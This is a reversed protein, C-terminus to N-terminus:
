IGHYREKKIGYIKRNITATLIEAFVRDTIQIRQGTKQYYRTSQRARLLKMAENKDVLLSM